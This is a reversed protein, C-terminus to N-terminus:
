FTWVSLVSKEEGSLLIDHKQFRNMVRREVYGVLSTGCYGHTSIQLRRSSM